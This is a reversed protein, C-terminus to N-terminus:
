THIHINQLSFRKRLQHGPYLRHQHLSDKNHFKKMPVRTLKSPVELSSLHKSSKKENKNKKKWFLEFGFMSISSVLAVVMLWLGLMVQGVSLTLTEIESSSVIDEGEDKILMNNLVGTEALNRVGMKFIPVLPSNKPFIVGNYLASKKSSIVKLKQSKFPNAQFFGKLDGVM